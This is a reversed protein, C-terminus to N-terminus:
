GARRFTGVLGGVEVVSGVVGDGARLEGCRWRRGVPNWQDAVGAAVDERSRDIEVGVVQDVGPCLLVEARGAQRQYQDAPGQELPSGVAKRQDMAIGRM